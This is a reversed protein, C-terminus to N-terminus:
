LVKKFSREKKGPRRKEKEDRTCTQIIIAENSSLKTFAISINDNFAAEFIHIMFKCKSLLICTQRTLIGIFLNPHGNAWVLRVEFVVQVTV